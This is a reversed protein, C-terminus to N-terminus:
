LKSLLWIKGNVDNTATILLRGVKGSEFSYLKDGVEMKIANIKEIQLLYQQKNGSHYVTKETSLDNQIKLYVSEEKYLIRTQHANLFQPYQFLVLFLCLLSASYFKM